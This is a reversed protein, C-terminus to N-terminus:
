WLVPNTTAGAWNLSTNFSNSSTANAPNIQFVQGDWAFGYLVNYAFGLGYVGDHGLSGVVTSAGTTPNIKILRDGSGTNSLAVLYLLGDPLAIIDGSSQYMGPALLTSLEHSVVNYIAVGNGSIVIRGDSLATLGNINGFAEIGTTTIKSALGTTADINYLASGDVGYMLGNSTIAIDSINITASNALRFNAIFANVHTQPDYSYLKGFTQGYMVEAAPRRVFISVKASATKGDTNTITYDFTVSGIFDLAPQYNLNVGSQSLTGGGVLNQMSVFSITLHNSDTDNALLDAIPIVLNQNQAIEYPGDDKAILNSSSAPSRVPSPSTSAPVAPVQGTPSLASIPSIKAISFVQECGSSLLTLGLSGVAFSVSSKGRFM